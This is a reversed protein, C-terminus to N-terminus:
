VVTVTYVIDKLREDELNIDQSICTVGDYVKTVDEKLGFRKAVMGSPDFHNGELNRRARFVGLRCYEDEGEPLKRLKKLILGETQRPYSLGSGISMFLLVQSREKELRHRKEPDFHESAEDEDWSIVVTIPRTLFDDMTEIHNVFQLRYDFSTAPRDTVSTAVAQIAIGRLKLKGSVFSHMLEPPEVYADLIESLSPIELVDDGGRIRSQLYYRSDYEVPGDLSMWSWTPAVYASIKSDHRQTGGWSKWLLQSELHKKWLGALYMDNTANKMQSALGALAATKDTSRTLACASYLKVLNSWNWRREKEEVSNLSPKASTMFRDLMHKPIGRPFDESASLQLCEWHVQSKAFSLQKRALYREQVVWGRRNLPATTIDTTYTFENHVMYEKLGHGGSVTVTTSKDPKMHPPGRRSFCGANGDAGWTAAINCCANHYILGMSSSQDTWDDDEDQIICLSDIWIYQVGLSLAVRMAQRYTKPLDSEPQKEQFCAINDKFLQTHRSKGWCHSLTVYSTAEIDSGRVLRWQLKDDSYTDLIEILRTPLFQPLGIEQERCTHHSECCTRFWYRWLDVADATSTSPAAIDPITPDNQVPSFTFTPVEPSRYVKPGVSVNLWLMSYHFEWRCVSYSIMQGHESAVETGSYIIASLANELWEDGQGPQCAIQESIQKCVFCGELVSNKFSHLLHHSGEMIREESRFRSLSEGFSTKCIECLM